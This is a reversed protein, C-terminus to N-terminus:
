KFMAGAASKTILDCDIIAMTVICASMSHVICIRSFVTIHEYQAM